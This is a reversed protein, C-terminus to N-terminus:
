LVFMSAAVVALMSAVSVLLSSSGGTVPTAPTAVPKFPIAVRNQTPAASGSTCNQGSCGGEPTGPVSPVSPVIPVSPCRAGDCESGVRGIQEGPSSPKAVKAFTSSSAEVATATTQWPVVETVVQLGNRCDNAGPPCALTHTKTAYATKTVVAPVSYSPYEPTDPQATPQATPTVPCVTTYLAITETVVKGKPCKTVEPPCATITHVRTTYVTSTTLPAKSSAIPTVPRVPTFVPLTETVVHSTNPCDTVEPPCSTITRITTTYATSPIAPTTSNSWKGSPIVSTPIPQSTIGTPTPQSTLTTSTASVPESSLSTPEPKSTPSTPVPKSTASTPISTSTASTPVSTSTPSTSVPTSTTATSTPVPECGSALAEAVHSNFDKGDVINGAGRELDWLSIGGWNKTDKYKCILEKVKDPGIYGSGGSSPSSLLGVFLKANKSKDSKALVDAWADLNFKDGPTNNPIADCVPNNYFQVFLADFQAKQIMESMDNGHNLPCQPAATILLSSDLARLKNVMAIYPGNGNKFSAEIDFDFGDVAIQKNARDFPRPGTWEKRYPGFANYLFDAFYEGNADTTVEYDNYEGNPQLKDSYVGGISLIVKVGKSQCYPIDDKLDECNSRLQTESGSKSPFTERWCHSSFNIGPYNAGSRDKEPSMNVFGITAYKIGTDCVSRLTTAGGAQGWYGNLAGYAATQSLSLAM